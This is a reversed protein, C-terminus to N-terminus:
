FKFQGTVNINANNTSPTGIAVYYEGAPGDMSVRSGSAISGGSYNSTWYQNGNTANVFGIQVKQGSPSWTCSNITIIEGKKIYYTNSSKTYSNAGLSSSSINFTAKASPLNSENKNEIKVFESTVPNTGLVQSSIAPQTPNEFTSASVTGSGITIVSFGIAAIISKKLM